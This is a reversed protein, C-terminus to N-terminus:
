YVPPDQTVARVSDELSTWGDKGYRRLMEEARKTDVQSLDRKQKPDDAPWKTEPAIKRLAALVTNYNFSEAFGFLREGQVDEELLGAIHLLAIDVVDVHYQPPFNRQRQQITEDHPNKYVDRIWGGTSAPQKLHLIPGMTFNPLVANLVFGPKREDVFKWAAKEAETKSSAYVEWERGDEYPPPQWAAKISAENWTSADISFVKDHIPLTAATSSSTYVFRKVSSHQAASDLVHGLGALVNPIVVNPDKSFSLDSAVHCVGAVGAMAEDFAGPTAMDPVVFVKFLADPHRSSFAQKMWDGKEASRVTGHVGYGRALLQDAIHSGIYGNVGTILVIAGKPLVPQKASM